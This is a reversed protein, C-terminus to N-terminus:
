SSVLQDNVYLNYASSFNNVWLGMQEGAPLSTKMHLRYTAYGVAPLKLGRITYNDWTDPVKANIDPVAIDLDEYMLLKNWYFDWEGDLLAIGNDDFNWQSLDLNGESVQEQATHTAISCGSLVFCFLVIFITVFRKSKKM